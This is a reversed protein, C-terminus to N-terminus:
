FLVYNYKGSYTSINSWCATNQRSIGSYPFIKMSRENIFTFLICHDPVSVILVWIWGEFVFSSIVLIVFLSCKLPLCSFITWAFYKFGSENHQLIALVIKKYFLLITANDM